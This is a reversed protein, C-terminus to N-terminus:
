KKKLTRKNRKLRTKSFTIANKQKMHWDYLGFLTYPQVPRSKIYPELHKWQIHEKFFLEKDFGIECSSGWKLDLQMKKALTTDIVNGDVAGQLQFPVPRSPDSMYERPDLEYHSCCTRSCPNEKKLYVDYHDGLIKKAIAIDIQGKNEVMLEELRVKRAGNHRRVDNFGTDSCELNRIRPDYPANFGIFYGNKTRETNHFRLGLEIRMIENTNTDGFLWSNAYEGSNETLLIKEYDDLTNGYQVAQRIRCSIPFKNPDYEHFGGMTTETTIIGSKSVYFDSGSWICGIYGSMIFRHGKAPWIDVVSYLFQGDMFPVFSNHGCVIKGDATWDGNAIFGSCSEKQGKKGGGEKSGSKSKVESTGYVELREEEPMNGWWNGTLATYNNWAIIEDISTKTGGATCGESFGVMEEYYEPFNVEIVPKFYKAAARIFFDWKVGYDDYVLFNITRQVEKMDEAVLYGYAYGRERPEGKIAVYKWGNLKYCVGNKVKKMNQRTENSM